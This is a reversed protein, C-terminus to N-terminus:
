EPQVGGQRFTRWPPRITGTAAMIATAASVSLRRSIMPRPMPGECAPAKRVPIRRDRRARLRSPTRGTILERRRFPGGFRRTDRRSRYRGSPRWRGPRRPVQCLHRTVPHPVSERMDRATLVSGDGGHDALCEILGAAGMGALGPALRRILQARAPGPQGVEPVLGLMVHQGTQGKGALVAGPQVAGIGDFAQVLLHLPAGVDDARPRVRSGIANAGEIGFPAVM